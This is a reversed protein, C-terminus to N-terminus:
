YGISQYVEVIPEPIDQFDFPYGPIGTKYAGKEWAFIYVTVLKTGTLKLLKDLMAELESKDERFYVATIKTPSATIEYHDTVEVPIFTNEKLSLLLNARRTLKLKAEDSLGVALEKKVFGTKLYALNACLGVMKEGNPTTYGKMARKIREFTVDECINNENNTCLLFRRNGGDEKNLQLVAHGTTASGAFYDLVTVDKGSSIQLLRKILKTPKPTDFPVRGQGFIDQLEKNAQDNHGGEEFTWWTVPVVGQQVENLYRKLQPAGKGNKGFFVRGEAIWKSMTEQSARWSNGKKPLFKQGTAPNNVEFVGSESFSKVLLNDSRWPGRGDGDDNKYAADQKDTRPLLKRDFASTKQYVTIYDHMAPIGKADNSAAYKKQWVINALFNAEGFIADCLLKLPAAEHDDISIFIVASPSMLTSALRLRKEMFSLWKSHRYTDEKEVYSDNYRFDKNGTNYPPDIYIVDIKGRHTYSLVSLAHYNDGEILVNHDADPDLNIDKSKGGKPKLVPVANEADKEFQEPKDEWVLGYPKSTKLEAVIRNLRDIEALLDKERLQAKMRGHLIAYV